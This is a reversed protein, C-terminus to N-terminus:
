NAPLAVQLMLNLQLSLFSLIWCGENLFGAELGFHFSNANTQIKEAMRFDLVGLGQYYLQESVLDNTLNCCWYELAQDQVWDFCFLLLPSYFDWTVHQM